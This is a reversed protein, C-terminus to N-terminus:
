LRGKMANLAKGLQDPFEADGRRPLPRIEICLNEGFRRLRFYWWISRLYLPIDVNPVTGFPVLKDGVIVDHLALKRCYDEIDDFERPGGFRDPRYGAKATHVYQEWWAAQPYDKLLEPLSANLNNIV